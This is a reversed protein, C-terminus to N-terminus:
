NHGVMQYRVPTGDASFYFTYTGINGTKPDFESQVLQWAECVVGNVTHTGELKTFTSFDPYLSVTPGESKGALWCTESSHEGDATTPVASVVVTGKSALDTIWVDPGKV